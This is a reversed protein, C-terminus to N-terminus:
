LQAQLLFVGRQGLDQLGKAVRGPLEALVVQAVAVLEQRGHVPEVLEVAVEIVQVGLFLGLLEVVRVIEFSIM